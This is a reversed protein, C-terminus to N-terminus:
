PDCVGIKPIFGPLPVLSALPLLCALLSLLAIAAIRPTLIRTIRGALPLALFTGATIGLMSVGLVAKDVGLSAQLAPLRTFLTIYLLANSFFILAPAALAPM